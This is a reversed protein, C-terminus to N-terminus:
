KKVRKTDGRVNKLSKKTSYGTEILYKKCKNKILNRLIKEEIVTDKKSKLEEVKDFLDHMTNFEFMIGVSNGGLSTNFKSTGRLMYKNKRKDFFASVYMNANIKYGYRFNHSNYVWGRRRLENDFDISKDM